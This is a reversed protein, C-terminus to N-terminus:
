SKWILIEGFIKEQKITVDNLKMMELVALFTVVKEIKEADPPFLTQFNIEGNTELIERLQNIKENVTYLDRAVAGFRSHVKDTRLERRRLTEDFIALLRELSLGALLEATLPTERAGRLLAALATDPPRYLREGGLAEQEKLFASIKKFYKYEVLRAVLAERPDELAEKPSSDKPLLMKSKITLLAAAMVLFESLSDLELEQISALYQDTLLAIPIDYIDVKNKDILDFLLDFPGEFTEFKVRVM